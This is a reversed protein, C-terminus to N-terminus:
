KSDSAAAPGPQPLEVFLRLGERTAVVVATGSEFVQGPPYARATWFEGAGVEVLGSTDSVRERVVAAKGTLDPFQVTPQPRVRFLLEITRPRVVGLAFASAAAFVLLQVAFVDPLVLAVLATVIAAAAEYVLYFSMTFIEGLLAIAAIVLWTVFMSM